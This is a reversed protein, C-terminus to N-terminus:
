FAECVKACFSTKDLFIHVTVEDNLRAQERTNFTKPWGHASYFWVMYHLHATVYGSCCFTFIWTSPMHTAGLSCSPKNLPSTFASNNFSTWPLYTGSSWKIQPSGLRSPYLKSIQLNVQSFNPDTQSCNTLTLFLGALLQIELWDQQYHIVEATRSESDFKPSDMKKCTMDPFQFYFPFRWRMRKRKFTM